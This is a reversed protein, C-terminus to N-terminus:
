ERSGLITINPTFTIGNLYSILSEVDVMIKTGSQVYSLKKEKCLRRIIHESLCTDPDYEQKLYQFAKSITRFIM